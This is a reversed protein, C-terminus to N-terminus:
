AQIWCSRSFSARALRHVLAGPVPPGRRSPMAGAAIADRRCRITPPSTPRM